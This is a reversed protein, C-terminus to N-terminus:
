CGSPSSCSAIRNWTVGGEGWLHENRFYPKRYSETQRARLRLLAVSDVSWDIVLPNERCWRAAGGDDGSSDGKEFPM